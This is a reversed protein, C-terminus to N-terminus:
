YISLTCVRISDEDVSRHCVSVASFAGSTTHSFRSRRLSVRWHIRDEEPPYDAAAVHYTCRNDWIVVDGTRGPSSVACRASDHIFNIGRHDRRQGNPEGEIYLIKGPDFYLGKPGNRTFGTHIFLLHSM